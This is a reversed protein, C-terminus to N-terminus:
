YPQWMVKKAEEFRRNVSDWCVVNWWADIYDKRNNHYQLYYAHEWVDLVLLPIVDQQTLNQHKEAQLIETRRSRPSWVLLAWGVAQVKDAAHTFHDKFKDFSGFTRKIEKAIDGDPKGGGDPSMNEWFITHLYHGAGNFAAEGEWHRILDFNGSRRAKQMEKEAKNLGDVYGQHHKQHHLRMIEESIHPELANYAYPLPPLTHKGIPVTQYKTSKREDDDDSEAEFSRDPESDSAGKTLEEFESKLKEAQNNLSEVTGQIDEVAEGKLLQHRHANAQQSLERLRGQWEELDNNLEQTMDSRTELSGALQECETAWVALQAMWDAETSQMTM